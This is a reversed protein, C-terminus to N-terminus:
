KKILKKRFRNGDSHIEVIYIGQELDSIDIFTGSIRISYVVRGFQNYISIDSHEKVGTFFLENTTPNPYININDVKDMEAVGVGICNVDVEEESSCGEANNLINVIASTEDLYNCVSLVSCLSLMPNSTITLSSIGTYSLNEIGALSVLEDNDSIILDGDISNLEELGILNVLSNNNTIEINGGVSELDSLQMANESELLGNLTTLSSNNNIVLENGIFSLNELGSISVLNPNGTDGGINLYGMIQEISQLSDLNTIDNGEILVNGNIINCGVCNAPFEDIESQTLFVWDLVEGFCAIEFEDLTICGDNNNEINVVSSSSLRYDCFNAISCNSLEANDKIILSDISSPNIGSLGSIDTLVENNEIQIYDYIAAVNDLGDLNTLSPCDHIKIYGRVEVINELNSLDSVGIGSIDLNGAIIQCDGYISSFNNLYSQNTIVFDDYYCFQGCNDNIENGSNCGVGNNSILTITSITNLAECVIDIACETLLPNNEILVSFDSGHTSNWLANLSTLQPNDTIELIVNIEELNELGELSELLQNNTLTLYDISMLNDLGNLSTLSNLGSLTFRGASRLNNLPELNTVEGINSLTIDAATHINQLGNLSGLLPSNRIQLFDDIQTLGILGSIDSLAYCEIIRIWGACSTMNELGNLSTLATCSDLTLLGGISDINSLASINELSPCNSIELGNLYNVDEMGDLSLLTSNNTIIVANSSETHSPFGDLSGLLDNNKIILQYFNLLSDLGMITSLSDNNEITFPSSYYSSVTDLNHLGILNKLRPNDKIWFNSEVHKLNELGHINLLNENEWLQFYYAYDLNNLGDLNSLRLNNRIILNNVSDLSNLGELSLLSDNNAILLDGDVIKLNELGNLNTITTGTLNFEDGIRHLNNLGSLDSIYDSIIYLQGEINNIYILSDVNTATSQWSLYVGGLITTCGPYNIPFSDVSAQDTITFGEALCGQQAQIYQTTLGLFITFIIIRIM